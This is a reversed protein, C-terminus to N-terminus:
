PLVQIQFSGDPNVVPASDMTAADRASLSVATALLTALLTNTYRIWLRQTSTM